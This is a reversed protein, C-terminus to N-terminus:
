LSNRTHNNEINCPFYGICFSALCNVLSLSPPGFDARFALPSQFHSIDAYHKIIDAYHFIINVDANHFNIDVDWGMASLAYSVSRKSEVLAGVSHRPLAIIPIPDSLFLDVSCICFIPGSVNEPGASRQSFGAPQSCVAMQM